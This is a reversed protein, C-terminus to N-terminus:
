WLSDDEYSFNVILLLICEEIEQLYDWISVLVGSWHLFEVFNNCFIYFIIYILERLFLDLFGNLLIRPFFFQVVLIIAQVYDSFILGFGIISSQSVDPVTIKSINLMSYSCSEEIERWSYIIESAYLWTLCAKSGLISAWLCFIRLFTWLICRSPYELLLSVMQQAEFSTQRTALISLFHPIVM